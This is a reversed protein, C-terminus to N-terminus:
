VLVDTRMFKRTGVWLCGATAVLAIVCYIPSLGGKNVIENAKFWDFPSIYKLAELKENLSIVVQLLYMGMVLGIALRAKIYFASLLYALAGFFLAGMWYAAGILWLAQIDADAQVLTVFGLWAVLTTALVSVTLYLMAASLKTVIIDQRRAPLSFLYEAPKDTFEKAVIRAFMGSAYIGFTLYLYSFILGYIGMPSTFDLNSMGFALQMQKPMKVDLIQQIDKGM